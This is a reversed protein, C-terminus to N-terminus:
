GTAALLAGDLTRRYNWPMWDAPRASMAAANEQLAVLYDFPSAGCLECTHILSMFLDGVRAGNATRYFYANKRHLIAKKLARECLNNDLPAGPERLFLTLKEWHNQLYTIAEGLGSNPEVKREEFQAVCWAKLDAMVPGSREQHFHLRAVPDMGRERAAADHAYVHKLLQLVHLCADPFREAVDVFRRRGHALCNAVITALGDPMNRSLADCMQIPPDLGAARRRLVDALNEGAHRQGTFFLAIRWGGQVSVIGSTFVGKRGPDDESTSARDGLALIKMTTDDNHLVRGQAAQRVLEEYAPALKGALERVIEWQTSAPLPIGLSGQMRELRHFPLGTGYKMLAIMSGAGADYKQGRAQSPAEATYVEGCLNCRLKELEWVTADLPARGRLCVVVGPAMSQYVKGKRCGPCAEGSKLSTHAVKVRAAGRYASAGNRGHGPPKDKEGPPRAQADAPGKRGLARAVRDAVDDTKETTDGFLIKKLRAVSVCRKELERTVVLLTQLAAALKRGEEETIPTTRARDLIGKLDEMDLDIREIKGTM